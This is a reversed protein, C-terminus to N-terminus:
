ADHGGAWDEDPPNRQVEVEGKPGMTSGEDSADVGDNRLERVIVTSVGLEDKPVWIWPQSTYTSPHDFGHVDFDQDLDDEDVANGERPAAPAFQPTDGEDEDSSSDSPGSSSSSKRRRTSATRQAVPRQLRENLVDNSVAHASTSAHATNGIDPKVPHDVDADVTKMDPNINAVKAVEKQVDKVVKQVPAQIRRRVASKFRDRSFLDLEDANEDNQTSSQKRLKRQREWREQLNKTALSMPLFETIPKFSRTFLIQALITLGLLVVMLIGEAIFITNRSLSLFFLAALCFQEIYMGVFLFSIALPFYKGGTELEDPQDFVWTLLFKWSFFFLLFSVTALANIIPSLVSYALAITALLSMRPLVLGFNAKPMLFTVGYAQRPTRGLFWKKVYHVFLQGVQLLASGAGSLGQTLTWTLFFISADPLHIALDSVAHTPNEVIEAATTTISSSLTVILFGHIVLFFFYRKYVSISLLSWRPINEYWALGKLLWPLIAFLIALFLPPLIGQIIGPIPTPAQRIWCLWSVKECLAAVNSLTGVFAVPAFWILILILSGIWSTIYRFRTEYAGDDINDWIVDKPSVEIWKEAMALPQHHSVCQALVHAGMQLNCQIFASGMPKPKTADESLKKRKEDISKNLRAIEDKCWEVTDVKRGWLGLFGLRHHPRMKGSGYTGLLIEAESRENSGRVSHSASQSLTPSPPLRGAELESTVTRQRLPRSSSTSARGYEGISHNATSSNFETQSGAALNSGGGQFHASTKGEIKQVEPKESDTRQHGRTKEEGKRNKVDAKDQKQKAKTVTRVLQSTAKELKKCLKLRDNYDKNLDTTDRYIWINEVGGPVFSAWVRLEKEDCLEPPVNTILVTRAQALTAHSRSILFQQRVVAYHKLERRILFLNWFTSIWVVAVHAAYRGTADNPINGWSLRSLKDNFNSDKLGAMDVPLLVACTLLTTSAFLMVLLRLFRLFMYADLGNENLVDGTPIAMVALFWKWWGRPLSVARKDPPPLYTRPEYIRSIRHKLFVFAILEVALVGANTALSTLFTQSDLNQAKAPTVQSM